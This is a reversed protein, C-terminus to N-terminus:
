LLVENWLSEGEKGVKWRDQCNIKYLIQLTPSAQVFCLFCLTNTQCLPMKIWYPKVKQKRESYIFADQKLWFHMEVCVNMLWKSTNKIGTILRMVPINTYKHRKNTQTYICITYQRKRGCDYYYDGFNKPPQDCSRRWLFDPTESKQLPLDGLDTTLSHIQAGSGSLTKM